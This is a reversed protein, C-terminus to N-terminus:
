SRPCPSGGAATARRSRPAQGPAPLTLGGSGPRARATAARAATRGRRAPSGCAPLPRASARPGGAGGRRPYRSSSPGGTPWGTGRSRLFRTSPRWLTPDRHPGQGARSLTTPPASPTMWASAGSAARSRPAQARWSPARWSGMASPPPRRSAASAPATPPPRGTTTSRRGRGGSYTGPLAEARGPRPPPSRAAARRVRQRPPM